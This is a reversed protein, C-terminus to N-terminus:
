FPKPGVGWEKAPWPPLLPVALLIYAIL